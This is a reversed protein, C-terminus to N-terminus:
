SQCGALLDGHSHHSGGHADLDLLEFDLRNSLKVKPPGHCDGSVCRDPELGDPALGAHDHLIVPSRLPRLAEQLACLAVTHHEVRQPFPERHLAGETEVSYSITWAEPMSCMAPA